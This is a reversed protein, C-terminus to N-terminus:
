YKADCLRAIAADVNALLEEPQWPHDWQDKHLVKLIIPRDLDASDVSKLGVIIEDVSKVDSWHGPNLRAINSGTDGWMWCARVEPVELAVSVRHAVTTKLQEGYVQSASKLSGYLDGVKSSQSASKLSGYLDGVEKSSQSASKLSGDIGM